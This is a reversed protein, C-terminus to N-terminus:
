QRGGEAPAAGDNPIIKLADSGWRLQMGSTDCPKKSERVEYIKKARDDNLSGKERYLISPSPGCNFKYSGAEKNSYDSLRFSGGSDYTTLYTRAPSESEIYYDAIGAAERLDVGTAIVSIVAFKNFRDPELKRSVQVPQPSSKPRASRCDLKAISHGARDLLSFVPGKEIKIRKVATESFRLDIVRPTELCSSPEVYGAQAAGAIFISLWVGLM